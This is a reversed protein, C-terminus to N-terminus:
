FFLLRKKPEFKKRRERWRQDMSQKLTNIRLDYEENSTFFSVIQIYYKQFVQMLEGIRKTIIEPNPSSRLNQFVWDDRGESLLYTVSSLDFWEDSNVSTLLIQVQEKELVIGLKLESSTLVILQDQYQDFLISEALDMNYNEMFGYQKLSKEVCDLFISRM